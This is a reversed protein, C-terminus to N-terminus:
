TLIILTQNNSNMTFASSVSLNTNSIISNIIRIQGNVTISSGITFINRTNAINFKTNTGTLYISNNTTSVVGSITNTSYYNLSTQAIDVERTIDLTAFNVFGAPHLLQKLIDKYRRFPIVSSTVYSYDYYYSGGQLRREYSSIISDTTKWRGPFVTFSSGVTAAAVAKGDGKQTLDIQPIYRYGVGGDTIKIKSIKGTIQDFVPTLIQGGGMLASIYIDAGSGTASSISVNPLNDVDYNLGGVIGRSFSGIVFDNASSSGDKFAIATNVAFLTDSVITTVYTEQSKIVVKDGSALESLFLTNTGIILSGNNSVNATGSIRPPQIQITLVQGSPGITKVAAAAGFGDISPTFIVEDGVKYGSGGDDVLDIRGVSKNDKIDFSIDDLTYLAAQNMTIVAQDALTTAYVVFVNQIPGLGTVISKSLADVIRTSSNESIPSSMGYNSSSITVNAFNYILEAGLVLYSNATYHSANIGDVYGSVAVTDTIPETGSYVSETVKFGAGGKTVTVQPLTFDEIAEVEAAAISVPGGGLVLIPDGVNYSKGGDIVTISTVISFTDAVVKLLRGHAGVIDSEIQEGNIFSGIVTKPSVFLEFPLGFNLNDTIVKEVAREVIASAGSSVGRVRRNKFLNYDYNSYNVRIIATSSPITNFVIKKAEKRITYHVNEQQLVGDLYVQIEGSNVPQAIFFENTAGNGEHITRVNRQIKLSSDITWKGDSARLINNKPYSIDVEENFLLRFLLKFSEDIGKSLYLPLINKILFDKDVQTDKPVSELFSNIFSDEFQDLSSDVDTINGIDKIVTNVNNSVPNTVTAAGTGSGVGTAVFSTGVTAGAPAGIGQWDTTGLNSITYRTGIIFSGALVPLTSIDQELFEYYARLFQIFLPYEERIFEPVQESVLLSTNSFAM